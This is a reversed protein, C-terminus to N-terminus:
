VLIYTKTNKNIIKQQQQQEGQLQSFQGTPSRAVPNSELPLSSGETNENFDFIKPVNPDDTWVKNTDTEAADISSVAGTETAETNM